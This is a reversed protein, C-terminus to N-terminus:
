KKSQLECTFIVLVSQNTCVPEETSTHVRAWPASNTFLLSSVSENWEGSEPRIYIGFDNYTQGGTSEGINFVYIDRVRSEGVRLSDEVRFPFVLIAQAEAVTVSISPQHHTDSTPGAARAPTVYSVNLYSKYTRNTVSVEASM